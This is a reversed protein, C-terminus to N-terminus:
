LSGKIEKSLLLSSVPILNHKKAKQFVLQMAFHYVRGPLKIALSPAGPYFQFV